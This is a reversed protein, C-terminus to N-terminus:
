YYVLFLLISTAFVTRDSEVGVGRDVMEGPYSSSRWRGLPPCLDSGSAHRYPKESPHLICRIGHPAVLKGLWVSYGMAMAHGVEM